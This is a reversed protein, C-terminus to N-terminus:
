QRGVYDYYRYFGFEIRDSKLDSYHLDMFYAVAAQSERYIEVKFDVTVPIIVYTYSFDNSFELRDNTPFPARADVRDPRDPADAFVARYSYDTANKVLTFNISKYSQSTGYHSLMLRRTGSLDDPLSYGSRPAAPPQRRANVRLHASGRGPRHLHSRARVRGGRVKGFIVGKIGHPTDVIARFRGTRSLSGAFPAKMGFTNSYIAGHIRNDRVRFSVPDRSDGLTSHTAAPASYHTLVARASLSPLATLLVLTCARIPLGFM